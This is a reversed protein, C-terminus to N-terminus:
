SEVEEEDEGEVHLSMFVNYVGKAAFLLVLAAALVSWHRVFAVRRIVILAGLAFFILGRAFMPRNAITVGGLGAM